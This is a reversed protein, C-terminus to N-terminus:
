KQCSQQRQPKWISDSVLDLGKMERRYQKTRGHGAHKLNSYSDALRAACAMQLPMEATGRSFGAVRQGNIPVWVQNLLKM